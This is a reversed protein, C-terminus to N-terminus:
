YETTGNNEGLLKNSNIYKEYIMNQCDILVNKKIIKDKSLIQNNEEERLSQEMKNIMIMIDMAIKKESEKKNLIIITIFFLLIIFIIIMLKEMENIDKM